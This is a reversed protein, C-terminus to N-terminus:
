RGDQNLESLLGNKIDSQYEADEEGTPDDECIVAIDKDPEYTAKLWIQYIRKQLQVMNLNGLWNKYAMKKDPDNM